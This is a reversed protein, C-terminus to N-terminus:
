ITFTMGDYAFECKFKALLEDKKLEMEPSVHTMIVRDIKMDEAKSVADQASIHTSEVILVNTGEAPNLDDIDKLDASYFVSKGSLNVSLSYSNISIRLTNALSNLGELHRNPAPKIVVKGDTIQANEGYEWLSYNFTLKENILYIQEFYRRFADSTGLPLYIDLRNKREILHMYQMLIPIGACHDPHCHSIIIKDIKGTDIDNKLLSNATGEGCDLLFSTKNDNFLISAHSRNLVSLGSATGIFTIKM